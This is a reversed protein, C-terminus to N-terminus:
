LLPLDDSYSYQYHQEYKSVELRTEVGDIIEILAEFKDIPSPCQWKPFHEQHKALFGVL